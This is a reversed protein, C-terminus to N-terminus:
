ARPRVDVVEADFIRIAAQVTPHLVAVTQEVAERIADEPLNSRRRIADVAESMRQPRVGDSRAIVEAWKVVLGVVESSASPLCRSVVRSVQERVPDKDTPAPTSSARSQRPMEENSQGGPRVLKDPLASSETRELPRYTDAGASQHKARRRGRRRSYRDPEESRYEAPLDPISDTLRFVTVRYERYKGQRTGPEIRVLGAARVVALAEYFASRSLGTISQLTRGDTRADSTGRYYFKGIAWLVKVAGGSLRRLWGKEALDDVWRYPSAM